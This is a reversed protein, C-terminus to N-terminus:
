GRTWYYPDHLFATWQSKMPIILFKTDPPFHVNQVHKVWQDAERDHEFPGWVDVEEEDDHLPITTIVLHM